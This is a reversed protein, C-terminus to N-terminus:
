YWANGIPSDWMTYLSEHIKITIYCYQPFKAFAVDVFKSLVASIAFANNEM